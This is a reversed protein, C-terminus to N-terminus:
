FSRFVLSFNNNNQLVKLGLFPFLNLFGDFLDDHQTDHSGILVRLRLKAKWGKKAGFTAMDFKKPRHQPLRNYM